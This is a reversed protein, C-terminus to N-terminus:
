EESLESLIERFRDNVPYSGETWGLRVIVTQQKPFVMVVQQRNGNAFFAEGPLDPFRLEDDGSNLWWQFGYAKENASTNPQTARTVWQETVIRHGNLTGGNLVLQGMRAWDRASAYLYSSGVFHGAADMELTAHQFGMPTFVADVMHDYAAQPSGLTDGYIRALLNATGSSYNFHTGPEHLASKSLVYDSASPETFLMRTSDDGPNYQESFDLGDTMTLLHNIRIDSRSDNSWEPFDPAANLDIMGRMELNGLLIATFSKAMSWGLLPTHATAGQAYAEAVIEGRHAVLLARSNLGQTNDRNVLETVAAQLRPNASNVTSGAPWPADSAPLPRTVVRYRASENPFEIACGIGPRFIATSEKIGFLSTTVGPLSADYDVSLQGFVPSYQAVDDFAQQRDSAMVHEASCLLKAGMGTAVAPGKIIFSSLRTNALILLLTLVLIAIVLTFRIM